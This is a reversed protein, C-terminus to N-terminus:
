PLYDQIIRGDLEYVMRGGPPIPADFPPVLARIEIVVNGKPSPDMNGRGITVETVQINALHMRRMTDAELDAIHRATLPALDAIAFPRDQAHMIAFAAFAGGFRDFGKDTLFFSTMQGPQRPDEASIRVKDSGFAFEAYKAGPGFERDIRTFADVIAAPDLWNTPKRRSEPPLVQKLAGTIDALVTGKEGNKDAIEVTWLLVPTGVGQTSKKLTIESVRGQPMGLAKRAAAPLKPVVTWDVEDVGFPADAFGPIAAHISGILPRRLGNLSWVFHKDQHISSGPSGFLANEEPLNTDFGIDGSGISVKLLVRDPGVAAKFAGAADAALELEQLIDLHKARNTGSLDQGIIRGRADAIIQARERGSNIDLTWLVPGSSPQPVILVQRKIEMGTLKAPDELRARQLAARTLAGAAAFDVGDLDFLNAELDKNILNLEVAHPGSVSRGGFFSSWLSPGYRWEDVHRRDQPDQIQLEIRDPGIEIQLARLHGAGIKDKLAAVGDAIAKDDDFLGAADALGGSALLAAAALVPLWRIFGRM